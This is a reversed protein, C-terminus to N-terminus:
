GVIRLEKKEGFAAARADIWLEFQEESGDFYKVLWPKIATPQHHIEGKTGVLM